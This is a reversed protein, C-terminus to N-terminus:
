AALISTPNSGLSYEVSNLAYVKFTYTTGAKLGLATYSLPSTLGTELNEFVNTQLGKDYMVKYSLVVTGGNSQGESWTITIQTGNTLLANNLPTTPADPVRLIKAGNGNASPASPNALNVAVVNAYIDSGWTLEFPTM